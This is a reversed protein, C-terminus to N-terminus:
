SAYAYYLENFLRLQPWASLLIDKLQSGGNPCHSICIALQYIGDIPYPRASLAICLSYRPICHSIDISSLGNKAPKYECGAIVRFGVTVGCLCYSSM